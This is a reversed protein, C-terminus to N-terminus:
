RRRPCEDPPNTECNWARRARDHYRDEAERLQAELDACSPDGEGKAEVCERYARRAADYEGHEVAVCAPTLLTLVM